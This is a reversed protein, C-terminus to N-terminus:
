HIDFWLEQYQEANELVLDELTLKDDDTLKHTDTFDKLSKLAKEQYIEPFETATKQTSLKRSEMLLKSREIQYANSQNQQEFTVGLGIIILIVAVFSIVINKANIKEM